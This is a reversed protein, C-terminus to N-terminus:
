QLEHQVIDPAHEVTLDPLEVTDQRLTFGPDFGVTLGALKALTDFDVRSDNTMKLNIPTRSLPKLEPPAAMVKPQEEAPASPASANEANKAAIANMTNQIEQQAIPSAPDIM